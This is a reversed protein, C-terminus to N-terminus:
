REKNRQTDYQLAKRLEVVARLSYPDKIMAQRQQERWKAQMTRYIDTLDKDVAKDGDINFYTSYVIQTAVMIQMKPRLPYQKDLTIHFQGGTITFAVGHDHVTYNKCIDLILQKLEPNM